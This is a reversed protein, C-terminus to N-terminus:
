HSFGITSEVWNAAAELDIEPPQDLFLQFNDRTNEEMNIELVNACAPLGATEANGDVIVHPIRDTTDVDALGM